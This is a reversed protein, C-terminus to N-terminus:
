QMLQRIEYYTFLITILISPIMLTFNIWFWKKEDGAADEEHKRKITWTVYTLFLLFYLCFPIFMKMIIQKRITSWQYFVIDKVIDLNFMESSNVKLLNKLFEHAPKGHLIWDFEIMKVSVRVM